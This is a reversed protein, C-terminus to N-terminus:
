SKAAAPESYIQQILDACRYVMAARSDVGLKMFIRRLHTSVTWESIRLQGAIQKNARGLAVLTAIQLERPTLLLALQATATESVPERKVVICARGNVEFRSIEVFQASEYEPIDPIALPDTQKGLLVILYQQQAIEFTDLVSATLDPESLDSESSTVAARAASLSKM